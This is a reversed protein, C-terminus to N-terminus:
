ASYKDVIKEAIFNAVNEIGKPITIEEGYIKLCESVTFASYDQEMQKIPLYVIETHVRNGKGDLKSHWKFLSEQKCNLEKLCKALKLSVVQNGLKM